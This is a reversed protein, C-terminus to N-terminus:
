ETGFVNMEFERAADWLKRRFEPGRCDRYVSDRLDVSSLAVINDRSKLRQVAM